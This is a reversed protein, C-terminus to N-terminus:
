AVVVPQDLRQDALAVKCYGSLSTAVFPRGLQHQQGVVQDVDAGPGALVTALDHGLAGQGVQLPDLRRQGALVHGALRAM